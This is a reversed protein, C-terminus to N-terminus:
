FLKEQGSKKEKLVRDVSRELEKSERLFEQRERSNRDAKYFNKQATRMKDVLKEFDNM